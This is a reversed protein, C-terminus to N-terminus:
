FEFYFKMTKLWTATFGSSSLILQDLGKLVKRSTSTYTKLLMFSDSAIMVACLIHHVSPSFCSSLQTEVSHWSSNLKGLLSSALLHMWTDVWDEVEPLCACKSDMNLQSKYFELFCFLGVTVRSYFQYPIIELLATCELLLMHRQETTLAGLSASIVSGPSALDERKLFNMPNPLELKTSEM